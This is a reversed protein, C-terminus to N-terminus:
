GPPRLTGGKKREESFWPNWNLHLFHFFKSNQAGRGRLVGGLAPNPWGTRAENKPKTNEFCLYILYGLFYPVGFGVGIVPRPRSDISSHKGGLHMFSLFTPYLRGGNVNDLSGLTAHTQTHRTTGSGWRPMSGSGFTMLRGAGEHKRAAEARCGLFGQTPKPKSQQRQNSTGTRQKARTHRREDWNM